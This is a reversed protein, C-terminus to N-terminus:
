KPRVDCDGYEYSKEWGRMLDFVQGVTQLYGPAYLSDCIDHMGASGLCVVLQVACQRAPM